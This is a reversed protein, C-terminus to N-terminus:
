IKRFTLLCANVKHQDMQMQMQKSSRLLNFVILIGHWIMWNGGAVVIIVEWGIWHLAIIIPLISYFNHIYWRYRHSQTYQTENTTSPQTYASNPRYQQPINQPMSNSPPYVISPYVVSVPPFQQQTSVTTPARQQYVIQPAYPQTSTSYSPMRSNQPM